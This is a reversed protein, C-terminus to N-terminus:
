MYFTKHVQMLLLLVLVATCTGETYSSRSTQFVRIESSRFAGQRSRQEDSSSRRDSEGSKAESHGLPETGGMARAQPM